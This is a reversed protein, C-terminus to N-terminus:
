NIIIDDSPYSVGVEKHRRVLGTLLSLLGVRGLFMAVSLIVKSPASLDATIGLSSGVTFLASLSEFLLAKLPLRPELAVIALSFILYSIISLAVVANARRVSGISIRRRFATARPAGTLVARINLWIAAFTNVKIGGGTSQSAGGVWMLFMVVILTSGMFGAPNVSAFGASRPVASNFVSQTIKEELTMGALSHNYEFMFFLAAGAILLATFTFLVIRTNMNYIYVQRAPRDTTRRCFWYRIRKLQAVMADRINVLIPFGISGAVILLTMIWYISINGKLLLPNSLGDHLTSFGANCFASLSHFASFAIEDTLTMGLTGHISLWILVAGVAEVTVTFGLIYLLTPILSNMSKSYVMDRLMLQSYISTNGSFFLAFFSTFTLVGLAGIQILIALIWQGMPTFITSVDVPTLGTISVASTSVFLSDVYSIPYYTCKPLMLLFSGILIFILFSASMLLSPNTRRGVMRFLAYSLTVVSYTVLVIYLMRSSYLLDKLWPIWPHLPKPYLWPLLMVIIAVDVTWKIIRTERLTTRLNFILNFLVNVTFVGQCWRMLSFIRRLDVDDHEFGVHVVIGVLCVVSAIASLVMLTVSMPAVFGHVKRELRLLSQHLSAFRRGSSINKRNASM